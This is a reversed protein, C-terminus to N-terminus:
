HDFHFQIRCTSNKCDTKLWDVHRKILFGSLKIFATEDELLEAETPRINPFEMLMGEYYMDIDLNFEEFSADVKVAGTALGLEAASEMFENIAIAARNIVERRAGWAAGNNEMFEAIDESSIAGPKMEVVQHKAIGIRFLLSLLIASVAAASLSSKLLPQLYLPLSSEIGPFMEVSLGITFALGLVFTRRADLMRSTCIQMGAPTVFVIALMLISAMVPEPMIAFIASLKPFFALLIFIMGVCYGLYRSVVGTAVSLGMSSSSTTQGMSGLFGSLMTGLGEALLGGSISKMDPRTWNADNVKQCASINGITKVSSCLAVLLFPFLLNMDFSWGVHGMSPFAIIPAATIKQLQENTLIGTGYSVLFGVIIGIVISYQRIIKKGWVHIIMIVVLTTCAVWAKPGGGVFSFVSYKILSIPVMIIILGMIEVPFLVRMKHIVRSLLVQCAGALVTMGLMLHFGGSKAALVSVPFFLANTEHACFYGSGISGKNYSQVITGIGMTIMMLSVFSQALETTGGIASVILVPFMLDVSLTIIQQLVLPILMQFPPKEDVDYIIDRPKKRKIDRM